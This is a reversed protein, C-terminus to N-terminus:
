RLVALGIEIGLTEICKVVHMCEVVDNTGIGTPDLGEVYMLSGVDSGDTEIVRKVTEVVNKKKTLWDFSSHSSCTIFYFLSSCRRKKLQELLM